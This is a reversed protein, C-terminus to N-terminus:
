SHENSHGNSSKGWQTYLKPFLLILFLCHTLKVSCFFLFHTTFFCSYPLPPRHPRPCPQADLSGNKENLASISMERFAVCIRQIIWWYTGCKLLPPLLLPSMAYRKRRKTAKAESSHVRAGGMTDLKYVM